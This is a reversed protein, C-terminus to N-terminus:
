HFAPVFSLAVMIVVFSVAIVAIRRLDAKIHTYDTNITEGRAFTRIKKPEM